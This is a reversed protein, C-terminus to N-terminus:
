LITHAEQPCAVIQWVLGVPWTLTSHVTHKTHTVHIMCIISYDLNVLLVVRSAIRLNLFLIWWEYTPVNFNQILISIQNWKIWIKCVTKSKLIKRTISFLSIPRSLLVIERTLLIQNESCFKSQKLLLQTSVAM